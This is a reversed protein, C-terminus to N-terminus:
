KIRTFPVFRVPITKSEIIEGSKKELLILHQTSYVPGVPIIMKGGEKLQKVLPNPIEEPAATVIIADFPGMEPWGNYGDGLKCTINSYGLDLLRGSAMNYLGEVIEITFVQDAIEALVAAQYGSGTGIELVKDSSKLDLLETMYAVVYPQSITQNYGIELPMDAYAVLRSRYPVFLHREVKRMAKLVAPDKIGRNEIQLKVMKERKAIYPDNQSFAGSGALFFILIFSVVRMDENCKLLTVFFSKTGGKGKLSLPNPPFTFSVSPLM